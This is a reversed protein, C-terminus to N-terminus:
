LTAIISSARRAFTELLSYSQRSDAIKMGDIALGLLEYTRVDQSRKYTSTAELFATATSSGFAVRTEPYLGLNLTTVSTNTNLNPSALSTGVNLALSSPDAIFEWFTTNVLANGINGASKSRYVLKTTPDYVADYQAYTAAGSYTPAAVYLMQYWGDETFTAAWTTTSASAPDVNNPTTTLATRNGAYDVKFIKVFVGQATRVPSTYTTADVFTVLKTALDTTINAAPFSISIPM